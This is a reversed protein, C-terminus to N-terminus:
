FFGHGCGFNYAHPPIGINMTSERLGGNVQGGAGAFSKANFMPEVGVPSGGGCFPPTAVVPPSAAEILLMDVKKAASRKLEELAARLHQLQPMSLEEVPAEWWPQSSGTDGCRMQALAEGHKKEAELQALVQTLQANLERVSANRHAEVLRMTGSDAHHPLPLAAVSSAAAAPLPATRSLFREVISEVSPHGFSFAKKGPSFVIITIEAGCLTCLESAKKFLGARRKSFTVQLNSDSTMKTMAVKQRGKSKRVM